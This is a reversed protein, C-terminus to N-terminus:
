GAVKRRSDVKRQPSFPRCWHFVGKSTDLKRAPSFPRCNGRKKDSQIKRVSREHPLFLGVQSTWTMTTISEMHPPFYWPLRVLCAHGESRSSCGGGRLGSGLLLPQSEREGLARLCNTTAWSSPPHSAFAKRRTVTTQRDDAICRATM